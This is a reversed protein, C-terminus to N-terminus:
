KLRMVIAMSVNGSGTTGSSLSKITVPSKHSIRFSYSHNNVLKQTTFLTYTQNRASVGTESVNFTDNIRAVWLNDTNDWLGIVPATGKVTNELMFNMIIQYTGNDKVTFSNGSADSIYTNENDLIITNLNPIAMPSNGTYNFDKSLQVAIQQAIVFNGDVAIVTGTNNLSIEPLEFKSWSPSKEPGNSVLIDGPNGPNGSTKADGGVSLDGTIQLSGNIHLMAQPTSTEIGVQGYACIEVSSLINLFFLIFNKM